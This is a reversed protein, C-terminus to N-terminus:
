DVRVQWCDTAETPHGPHRWGEEPSDWQDQVDHLGRVPYCHQGAEEADFTIEEKPQTRLRLGGDQDRERLIELVGWLWGQFVGPETVGVLSHHVAREQQALHWPRRSDDLDSAPFKQRVFDCCREPFTPDRCGAQPDVSGHGQWYRAPAAFSFDPGGPGSYLSGRNPM